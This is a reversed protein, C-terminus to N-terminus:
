SDYSSLYARKWQIRVDTRTQGGWSTKTRKELTKVFQPYKEALELAAERQVELSRYTSCGGDTNSGSQNTVFNNIVANRQGMTLLQLILAFDEMVKAQLLKWTVGLERLRPPDYAHLRLQRTAYLIQDFNRNAGERASVGVLAYDQLLSPIDHTILDRMDQPTVPRFKEPDDERRKAFKLDDDMEIIPEEYTQLIWERVDRICEASDPHIVINARHKHHDNYQEAEDSRVVLDVAVEEPMSYLTPQQHWRGRSPVVVRM